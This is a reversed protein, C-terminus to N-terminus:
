QAWQLNGSVSIRLETTSYYPYVIHNLEAPFLVLQGQREAYAQMVHSKIRGLTNTYVFHFDGNPKDPRHGPGQSEEQARTYPIRVWLVFSFVGQHNHLPNYEMRQQFNAWLASLELERHQHRDFEGTDPWQQRYQHALPGVLNAVHDRCHALHFERDLVGVLGTHAPRWGQGQNNVIQELEQTIPALELDTLQAVLYGPNPEFNEYTVQM